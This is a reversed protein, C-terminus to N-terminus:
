HLYIARIVQMTTWDLLTWPCIHIRLVEQLVLSIGHFPKLLM